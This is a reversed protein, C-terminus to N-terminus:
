ATHCLSKAKHWVRQARRGLAFEQWAEEFNLLAFHAATEAQPAVSM